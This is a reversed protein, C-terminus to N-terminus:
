GAALAERFELEAAVAQSLEELDMGMAETCIRKELLLELVAELDSLAADVSALERSTLASLKIM